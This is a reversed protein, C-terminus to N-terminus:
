RCVERRAQNRMHEQYSIGQQQPHQKFPNM